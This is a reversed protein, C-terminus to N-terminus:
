VYEFTSDFTDRVASRAVRYTMRFTQLRDEDCTGLFLNALLTKTAADMRKQTHTKKRQETSNQTAKANSQRQKQMIQSNKLKSSLWKARRPEEDLSPEKDPICSQRHAFIRAHHM